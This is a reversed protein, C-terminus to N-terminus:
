LFLQAHYYGFREKVLTVVKNYLEGLAPSAAIEQAVETTTQVQRGRRELSEQIQRELRKQETIDVFAELLLDEGQ